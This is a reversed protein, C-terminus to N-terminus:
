NCDGVTDFMNKLYNQNNKTSRTPRAPFRAHGFIKSSIPGNKKVSPGFALVIPATSIAPDYSIGAGEWRRGLAPEGAL